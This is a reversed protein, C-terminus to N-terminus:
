HGQARPCHTNIKDNVTLTFAQEKDLYIESMQSGDVTISRLKKNVCRTIWGWGDPIGEPNARTIEPDGPIALYNVSYEVLEPESSLVTNEVVLKSYTGDKFVCHYTGSLDPCENALIPMSIFLSMLIFKKM